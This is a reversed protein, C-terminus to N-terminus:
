SDSAGGLEVYRLDSMGAVDRLRALVDPSVPDDVALIMM